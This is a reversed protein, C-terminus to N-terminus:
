DHLPFLLLSNYVLACPKGLHLILSNPFPYINLLSIMPPCAPMPFASIRKGSLLGRQLPMVAPSINFSYGSRPLQHYLLPMAIHKRAQLSSNCGAPKIRRQRFNRCVHPNVLVVTSQNLLCPNSAMWTLSKFICRAKSAAM